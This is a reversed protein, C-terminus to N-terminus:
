SERGKRSSPDVGRDDEHVAAMQAVNESALPAEADGVRERAEALVQLLEQSRDAAEALGTGVQPVLECSCGIHDGPYFYHGEPWDDLNSFAPDGDPDTTPTGDLEFHPVFLTKPQGYYGHVWVYELPGTALLDANEAREGPALEAHLEDSLVDRLRVAIKEELGVADPISNVTPVIDPSEPLPAVARGDAIRMAQAALTAPITGSVEGPGSLDIPDQGSLIRQRALALLAAGLFLAAAGVTAEGGPVADEWDEDEGYRARLAEAEAKRRQELWARAQNEYSTFAGKLLDAENMGLAALFPMLSQHAEWATAVTRAMTSGSRNRAKTTARVGAHRLAEAFAIEAGALLQRGTDRRLESLLHMAREARELEAHRPRAKAKNAIRRKRPAATRPEDADAGRPAAPQDLRRGISVHHVGSLDYLNDADAQSMAAAWAPELPRNADVREMGEPLLGVKQPPFDGTTILVANQGRTEMALARVADGRFMEAHSQFAAEEGNRDFGRGIAAHGFADHVARFQDNAEDSLYAHSGTASTRLVELVGRNVDAVMEGADRYPDTDVFRVEVGLDKTLYEYQEAVQAALQDYAPFAEPDSLPLAEYAATLDLQMQPDVMTESFDSGSSELGREAMYSAKGEALVPSPDYVSGEFEPLEGGGKDGFRGREDRPHLDESWEAATRGRGLSGHSVGAGRTPASLRRRAWIPLLRELGESTIWAITEDFLADPMPKAAELRMWLAVQHAKAPSGHGVENRLQELTSVGVIGWSRAKIWDESRDTMPLTMPTSPNM